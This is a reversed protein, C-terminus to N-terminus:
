FFSSCSGWKLREKRESEIELPSCLDKRGVMRGGVWGKIGAELMLM